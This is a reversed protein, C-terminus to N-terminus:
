CHGLDKWMGSADGPKNSSSWQVSIWLHDNFTVKSNGPYDTGQSWAPVGTCVVNNSIPIICAGDLTWENASVEPAKGWSWEKVTWLQNNFIVPPAGVSYAVNNQWPQFNDCSVVARAVHHENDRPFVLAGTPALAAAFVLAVSILRSYM